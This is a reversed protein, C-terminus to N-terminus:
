KAKLTFRFVAGEGPKGDGVIRGDHKDIVRKASTLGIGSGPYDSERHLREFPLFIREASEPAFGIGNDRFCYCGESDQSFELVLPVDARAFKLANDALSQILLVMLSRDAVVALGDAVRIEATKNWERLKEGIVDRVLRSLDLSEMQMEKRGLRSLKLIDDLLRSLKKAANSQRLLEAKGEEDLKSGYDEILIMSSSMISRLPARFDHSVTYAFGELEQTREKVRRELEREYEVRNSIDRQVAVWHTVVGEGDRIPTIRWEVAYTTGDKRYNITEGFFTQKEQLDNRLRTVLNKDTLAGQLIRPTLGIVEERSYGTMREFGSNVYVITPGPADLEPTTILIADNAAEVAHVLVDNSVRM